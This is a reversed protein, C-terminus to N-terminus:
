DGRLWLMTLSYRQSPADVFDARPARQRCEVFDRDINRHDEARRRHRDMLHKSEAATGDDFEVGRFLILDADKGVVEGHGLTRHDHAAIFDRNLHLLQQRTRWLSGSAASIALGKDAFLRVTVDAGDGASKARTWGWM